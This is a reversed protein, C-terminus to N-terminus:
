DKPKWQTKRQSKWNREISRTRDDWSNPLLNRKPRTPFEQSREQKTRVNKCYPGGNYNRIGPVPGRRHVYKKRGYWHELQAKRMKWFVDYLKVIDIPQHDYSDLISIELEHENHRYHYFEGWYASVVEELTEFKRYTLFTKVIYM